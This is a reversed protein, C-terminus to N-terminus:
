VLQRLIQSITASTIHLKPVVLTINIHPTKPFYIDRSGMIM